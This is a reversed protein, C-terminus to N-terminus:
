ASAGALRRDEWQMRGGEPSGGGAEFLAAHDAYAASRARGLFDAFHGSDLYYLLQAM